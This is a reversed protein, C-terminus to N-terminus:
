GDSDERLKALSEKSLPVYYYQGEHGLGRELEERTFEMM